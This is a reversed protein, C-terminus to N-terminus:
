RGYDAGRLSFGNLLETRVTVRDSAPNPYVAVSQRARGIQTGTVDHGNYCNTCEKLEGVERRLAENDKRLNEILGTVENFKEELRRVNDEREAALELQLDEIEVQQEQVAETLIAILDAYRVGKLM